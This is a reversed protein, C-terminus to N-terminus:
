HYPSFFFCLGLSLYTEIIPPGAEQLESALVFSLFFLRNWEATTSYVKIRPIHYSASSIRHLWAPAKRTKRVHSQSSVPPKTSRRLPLSSASNKWCHSQAPHLLIIACSSLRAKTMLPTTSVPFPLLSWVDPGPAWPHNLLSFSRSTRQLKWTSQSVSLLDTIPWAPTRFNSYLLPICLNRVFLEPSITRMVEFQIITAVCLLFLAQLGHGDVIITEMKMKEM